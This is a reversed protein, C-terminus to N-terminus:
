SIRTHIAYLGSLTAGAVPLLRAATAEVGDALNVVMLLYKTLRLKTQCSQGQVRLSIGQATPPGSVDDSEWRDRQPNPSPVARELTPRRAM